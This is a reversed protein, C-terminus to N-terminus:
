FSFTAGLRPVRPPVVSTAYPEMGVGFDNRDVVIVGNV